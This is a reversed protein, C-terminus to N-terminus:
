LHQMVKKYKSKMFKSINRVIHKIKKNVFNNEESGSEM